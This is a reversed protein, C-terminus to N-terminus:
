PRSCNRERGGSRVLIMIMLLVSALNFVFVTQYLAGYGMLEIISSMAVPTVVGIVDGVGGYMANALGLDQRDASLSVHLAMSPFVIGHALGAVGILGALVVPSKTYPMVFMVLTYDLFAITMLKREDLVEYIRPLPIRISLMGLSYMSVLLAIQSPPLGIEESALLPFYTFISTFSLTFAVQLVCVLQVRKNRFVGGLSKGIQLSSRVSRTRPLLASFAVGMTGVIGGVLYTMRIPSEVLLASSVMPAVFMALSSALAFITIGAGSPTRHIEAAMTMGVTFVATFGLATFVLSGMVQPLSASAYLMFLSSVACVAGLRILPRRGFRDSLLGIPMRSALRVMAGISAVLGVQIVSAGLEVAFLSITPTPTNTAFLSFFSVLFLLAVYRKTSPGADGHPSNVMM